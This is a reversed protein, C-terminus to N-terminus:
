YWLFICSLYIMPNDVPYMSENIMSSDWEVHSINFDNNFLYYDPKITSPNGVVKLMESVQALFKNMM